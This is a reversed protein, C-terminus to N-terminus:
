PLSVLRAPAAKPHSTLFISFDAHRANPHSSLASSCQSVHTTQTSHQAAAPQCPHPPGRFPDFLSQFTNGGTLLIMVRDRGSSRICISPRPLTRDPREPGLSTPFIFVDSEEQSPCEMLGPWFSPTQLEARFRNTAKQPSLPCKLVAHAPQPNQRHSRGFSHFVTTPTLSNLISAIRSSFQRPAPVTDKHDGRLGRDELTHHCLQPCPLQIQLMRSRHTAQHRAVHSSPSAPFSGGVLLDSRVQVHFTHSESLKRSPAPPGHRQAVRVNPRCQPIANRPKPTQGLVNVSRRVSAADTEFQEGQSNSSSSSHNWDSPM